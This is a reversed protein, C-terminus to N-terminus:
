SASLHFSVSYTVSNANGHTASIRFKKPLFKNDTLNAAVASAPFLWMDKTTVTTMAVATLLAVWSASGEDYYELAFVVSPATGPIVSVNIHIFIGRSYLNLFEVPTPTAIRAVSAYAVISDNVGPQATGTLAM